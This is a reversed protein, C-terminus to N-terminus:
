IVEGIYEHSYCVRSADRPNTKGFGKKVRLNGDKDFYSPRSKKNTSTAKWLNSKERHEGLAPHATKSFYRFGKSKYIEAIADSFKSGIGLGQFEPIIVTRSGRWYSKIDRNTGHIVACFAIPKENIFGVYIHTSKSLTSDLYHYKQFYDWYSQNASRISLTFNPRRPLLGRSEFKKLDTNYIHDPRLWEIIDSHCTAIYLVNNNNENFYNRLNHALSKATDRDVVSTFEDICNSQQDLLMALEFRHFEGNSLTNPLRFWSPITRLGCALLLKEGNEITSFNEIVDKEYNIDPNSKYSNISKLITSKGSGSSGVILVIGKIPLNPIKIKQEVYDKVDYKIKLNNLYNVTAM